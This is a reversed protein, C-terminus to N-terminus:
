KLVEVVTFSTDTGKGPYRGVIAHAPTHIKGRTTITSDYGYPGPGSMQKETIFSVHSVRGYIVATLLSLKCKRSCQMQRKVEFHRLSPTM